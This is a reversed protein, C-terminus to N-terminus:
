KLTVYTQGAGSPLGYPVKKFRWCRKKDENMTLEFCSKAEFESNKQKKKLTAGYQSKNACFFSWLGSHPCRDTERHAGGIGVGELNCAPSTALNGQCWSQLHNSSYPLRAKWSPTSKTGHREWRAASGAIVRLEYWLTSSWVAVQGASTIQRVMSPGRPCCTTCRQYVCCCVEM